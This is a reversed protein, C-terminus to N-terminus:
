RGYMGGDYVATPIDSIDYIYIRKGTQLLVRQGDPSYHTRRVTEVTTGGMGDPIPEMTFTRLEEREGTESIADLRAMGDFTYFLRTSDPSFVPLWGPVGLEVTSVVELSNVDIINCVTENLRIQALRRGDPSISISGPLSEILSGTDLNVFSGTDLFNTVFLRRIEPLIAMDMQQGAPMDIFAHFTRVQEHTQLDWFTLRGYKLTAYQGGDPTFAVADVPDAITNPRPPPPVLMRKAITGTATEWLIASGM